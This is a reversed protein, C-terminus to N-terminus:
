VREMGVNECAFNSAIHPRVAIRQGLEARSAKAAVSDPPAYTGVLHLRLWALATAGIAGYESSGRAQGTPREFAGLPSCRGCVIGSALVPCACVGFGVPIDLLCGGAPGCATAHGGGRIELILKPASVSRYMAWGLCPWAVPDCQGVFFLTPVADTLRKPLSLCLLLGPHPTMAIACKITPDELVALQCAGGGMSWGAVAVRDVDIRGELASGSRTHEERLARVADLLGVARHSPMDHFPSPTAVTMALFGHSAFFTAWASMVHQGCAWGPMLVVSALREAEPVGLPIYVTAASYTRGDRESLYTSESPSLAVSHPGLSAGAQDDNLTLKM